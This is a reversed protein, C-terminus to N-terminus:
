AGRQWRTRAERSGRRRKGVKQLRPYSARACGLSSGSGRVRTAPVLRHRIRQGEIRKRASVLSGRGARLLDRASASSLLRPANAFSKARARRTASRAGKTAPAITRPTPYGRAREGRGLDSSRHRRAFPSVTQHIPTGEAMAFDKRSRAANRNPCAQITVGNRRRRPPMARPNARRQTRM